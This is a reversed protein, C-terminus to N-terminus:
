KIKQSSTSPPSFHWLFHQMFKSPFSRFQVWTKLDSFFSIKVSRSNMTITDLALEAQMERENIDYVVASQCHNLIGGFLVTSM